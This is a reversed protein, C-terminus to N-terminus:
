PRILTTGYVLDNEYPINKYIQSIDFSVLNKNRDYSYNCDSPNISVAKPTNM